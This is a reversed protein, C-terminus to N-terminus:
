LSKTMEIIERAKDVIAQRSAEPTPNDSIGFLYDATVGLKACIIPVVGIDIRHSKGNSLNLLNMRASKESSGKWITQAFDMKKGLLGNEKARSMCEKLRFM